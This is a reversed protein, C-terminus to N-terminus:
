GVKKKIRFFSWKEVFKMKGQELIIKYMSKDLAYFCDSETMLSDLENTREYIFITDNVVNYKGYSKSDTECSYSVFNSDSLFALYDKCEDGIFCYWYTEELKSVSLTCIKDCLNNRREITKNCGVIILVIFFLFRNMNM